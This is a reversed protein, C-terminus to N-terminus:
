EWDLGETHEKLMRLGNEYDAGLAKEFNMLLGMINLPRPWRTQMGWIVHTRDDNADAQTIVMYTTATSEFPEIFELDIFVTDGRIDSITQSGKGVDKNGIWAYSAGIQGETGTIETEMEPDRQSWPNWLEFNSFHVAQEYVVERPAEIEIDREIHYNVPAIFALLLGILLLAGIVYLIIKLAKM